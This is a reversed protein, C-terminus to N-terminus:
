IFDERTLGNEEFLTQYLDIKRGTQIYRRIEAKIEDQQDAHFLCYVLCLSAMESTSSLIVARKAYPLAKEPDDLEFYYLCAIM